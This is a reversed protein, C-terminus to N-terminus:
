LMIGHNDAFRIAPILMGGEKVAEQTDELAENIVYQIYINFLLGLPSL